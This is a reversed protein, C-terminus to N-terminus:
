GLRRHEGFLEAVAPSGPAATVQGCVWSPVGSAALSRQAADVQDAPLLAHAFGREIAVQGSMYTEADMWKQIEAKSRGSRQAYLDAMASDFPELFAATEAMDHRNGMALVWCNHIMVFSAAGVEIRDGAM